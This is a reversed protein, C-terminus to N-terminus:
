HPYSAPKPAVSFEAGTSKKVSEVTAGPGLATLTLGSKTVEFTAMETVISSVVGKGTLPLTCRPLIKPKGDKTAHEM